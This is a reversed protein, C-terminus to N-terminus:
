CCLLRKQFYLNIEIYYIYNARILKSVVCFTTKHIIFNNTKYIGMNEQDTIFTNRLIIKKNQDYTNLFIFIYNYKFYYYLSKHYIIPNIFM